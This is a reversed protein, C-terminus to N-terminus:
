LLQTVFVPCYLALEIELILNTVVTYYLNRGFVCMLEKDSANEVGSAVETGTFIEACLYSVNSIEFDKTRASLL